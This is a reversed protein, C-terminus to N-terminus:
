RRSAPLRSNLGTALVWAAGLKLGDGILFPLVGLKLAAGAPVSMWAALWAVGCGLVLAEAAVMAALVRWPHNRGAQTSILAAAAVFGLVYGGTPGLITPGALVPLGASAAAAYLAVGGAGAGLGLTAGAVFVVLTQLTVPVPSWPLHFRLKAAVTMALAVGVAQALILAVERTRAVAETQAVVKM